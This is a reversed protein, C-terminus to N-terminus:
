WWHYVTHLEIMTVFIYYRLMGSGGTHQAFVFWESSRSISAMRELRVTRFGGKRFHNHVCLLTDVQIWPLNLSDSFLPLRM